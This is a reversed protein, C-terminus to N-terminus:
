IDINEWYELIPCQFKTQRPVVLDYEVHLVLVLVQKSEQSWFDKSCLISLVIYFVQLSNRQEFAFFLDWNHKQLLQRLAVGQECIFINLVLPENAKPQDQFFSSQGQFLSGRVLFVCRSFSFSNKHKKSLCSGWFLSLRGLFALFSQVVQVIYSGIFRVLFIAFGSPTVPM